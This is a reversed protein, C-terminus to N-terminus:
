EKINVPIIRIKAPKKDRLEVPYVKEFELQTTGPKTAKFTFTTTGENKGPHESAVFTEKGVQEIQMPLAKHLKWTRGFNPSAPRKVTFEEGMIVTMPELTKIDAKHAAPTVPAAESKVQTVPKDKKELKTTKTVKSTKAKKTAKVKSAAPTAEKAKPTKRLKVTKAKKEAKTAKAKEAKKAKAQEAKEKAAEAKQEKTEVKKTKTEGLQANINKTQQDVSAKEAQYAQDIDAPASACMFPAVLVTLSLSIPRIFKM